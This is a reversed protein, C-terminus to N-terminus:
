SRDAHMGLKHAFLIFWRQMEVLGEAYRPPGEYTDGLELLADVDDRNFPMGRLHERRLQESVRRGADYARLVERAQGPTISM